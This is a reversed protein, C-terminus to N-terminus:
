ISKHYGGTTGPAPLFQVERIYDTRWFTEDELIHLPLKDRLFVRKQLPKVQAVVDRGIRPFSDNLFGNQLFAERSKLRKLDSRIDALEDAPHRIVVVM